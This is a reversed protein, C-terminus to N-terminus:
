QVNGIDVGGNILLQLAARSQKCKFLGLAALFSSPQGFPYSLESVDSLVDKM